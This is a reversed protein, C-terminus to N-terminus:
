YKAYLVSLLKGALDGNGEVTLRGAKEMQEQKARGYILLLHAEADATIVADFDGSVDGYDAAAEGSITLSWERDPGTSRFRFRGSFPPKERWGFFRTQYSPLFTLMGEVGQPAVEAAPDLDVDALADSPPLALETTLEVAQGYPINTLRKLNLVALDAANQAQVQQPRLNELEVEARLM